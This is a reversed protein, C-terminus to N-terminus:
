PEFDQLELDGVENIVLMKVRKEAANLKKRCFAALHMGEEYLQVTEDLPLEGSELQRVIEELREMAQEFTLSPENGSPQEFLPRNM